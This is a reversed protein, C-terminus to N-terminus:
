NSPNRTSGRQNRRREIWTDSRREGTRPLPPFLHDTMWVAAERLTMDPNEAELRVRDLHEQSALTEAVAWRTAELYPRDQTM